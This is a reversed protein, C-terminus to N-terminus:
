TAPADLDWGVYAALPGGEDESIDVLPRAQGLESCALQELRHLIAHRPAPAGNGTAHAGTTAVTLLAALTGDAEAAASVACAGADLRPRASSGTRRSRSPREM